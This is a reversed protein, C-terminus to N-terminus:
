EEIKIQYSDLLGVVEPLSFKAGKLRNQAPNISYNTANRFDAMELNTNLFTANQLNCSLLKSHKLDAESFDVSQLQCNIFSSRSLKMKYFISHDLQCTDFTTAFGFGNCADFQLGLMKCNKFQVDQFSTNKLNANSFNCDLFECESFRIEALSSNSFNCGIFTCYEYEGIELPKESYDVKKFTQEDTYKVEM